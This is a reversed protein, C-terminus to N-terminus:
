GGFPFLFIAVCVLILFDPEILGSKKTELFSAVFTSLIKGLFGDM